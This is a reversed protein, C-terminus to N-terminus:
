EIILLPAEPPAFFAAMIPGFRIGQAVRNFEV